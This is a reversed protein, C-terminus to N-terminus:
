AVFGSVGITYPGAFDYTIGASSAIGLHGIFPFLWSICPLPSWVVCYPYRNRHPDVRSVEGMALSSGDSHM